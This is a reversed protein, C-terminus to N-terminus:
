FSHRQWRWATRAEEIWSHPAGVLAVGDWLTLHPTVSM